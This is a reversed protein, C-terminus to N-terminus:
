FYIQNSYNRETYFFNLNGYIMKLIKKFDKESNNAAYEKCCHHYFSKKM